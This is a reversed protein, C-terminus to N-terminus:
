WTLGSRIRGKQNPKRATLYVFNNASKKFVKHSSNDQLSMVKLAVLDQCAVLTLRDVDYDCGLISKFYSKAQAYVEDCRSWRNLVSSGKRIVHARTYLLLHLHLGSLSM